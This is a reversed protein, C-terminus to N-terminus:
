SKILKMLDGFKDESLDSFSDAGLSKIHAVAKPKGEKKAYEQLATRVENIDYKVDEEGEDSTGFIDDDDEAAEEAAKAAEADEKAKAEEDKKKKAAAARKRKAADAAIQKTKAVAETDEAETGTDPEASSSNVVNTVAVDGAEVRSVTLGAAVASTLEGLAKLSKSGLEVTVNIDVM